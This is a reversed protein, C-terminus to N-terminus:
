TRRRADAPTLLAPSHVAENATGPRMARAPPAAAAHEAPRAVGLLYLACVCCALARMM